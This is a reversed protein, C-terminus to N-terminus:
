IGLDQHRVIILIRKGHECARGVQLLHLSTPLGQVMLCDLLLSGHCSGSDSGEMEAGHVLLLVDAVQLYFWWVCGYPSILQRATTGFHGVGM